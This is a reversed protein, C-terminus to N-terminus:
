AGFFVNKRKKSNFKNGLHDVIEIQKAVPTTLSEELNWGLSLRKEITKVQLGYVMLVGAIKKPARPM